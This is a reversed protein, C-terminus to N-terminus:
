LPRLKIKGECRTELGELDTKGCSEKSDVPLGEIIFTRNTLDGFIEFVNEREKPNDNLIFVGFRFTGNKAVGLNLDVISSNM